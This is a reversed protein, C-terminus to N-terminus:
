LEKGVLMKVSKCLITLQNNIILNEYYIITQFFICITCITAKNTHNLLQLIYRTM